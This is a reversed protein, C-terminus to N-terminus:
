VPRELVRNKRQVKQALSALHFRHMTSFPSVLGGQYFFFDVHIDAKPAQGRVKTKFKYTTNCRSFM